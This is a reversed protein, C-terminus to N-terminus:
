GLLLGLSSLKVYLLGLLVLPLLDDLSLSFSLSSFQYMGSKMDKRERVCACVGRGAGRFYNYIILM